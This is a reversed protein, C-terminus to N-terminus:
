TCQRPLKGSRNHEQYESLIQAVNEGIPRFIGEASARLLKVTCSTCDVPVPVNVESWFPSGPLEGSYTDYIYVEPEVKLFGPNDHWIRAYVRVTVLFPICAGSKGDSIHKAQAIFDTEM